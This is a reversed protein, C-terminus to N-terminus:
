SGADGAAQRDTQQQRDFRLHLIGADGEGPRTLRAGSYRRTGANIPLVPLGTSRPEDCLLVDFRDRLNELTAEMGDPPLIVAAGAHMLGFLGVLFRYPDASVVAGRAVGAARVSAATGAVDATFDGFRLAIGERTATIAGPDRGSVFLRGLSIAIV